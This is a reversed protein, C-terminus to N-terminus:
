GTIRANRQWRDARGSAVADRREERAIAAVALRAVGATVEGNGLDRAIAALERLRELKTPTPRRNARTERPKGGGTQGGPPMIDTNRERELLLGIASAMADAVTVDHRAAYATIHQRIDISMGKITWPATGSM